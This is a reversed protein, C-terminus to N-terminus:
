SSTGEKMGYVRSRLWLGYEEMTHMALYQQQEEVSILPGIGLRLPHHSKNFVEAPLRLLRIRWDIVGLLYYFLSNGGFFRVPLIPVEAKAIFRLIPLQWERDRVCHESLSLDSVAGSPFLGLSGGSRLHELAHRIGLISERTPAAQASGIPVVPIFSPSLAEIRQLLKNALLKYSPCLRGFYDALVVGDLSGYPHNSITIFPMGRRLLDLQASVDPTEFKVKCSVGLDQLVSHAFDAGQLHSHRDYLANVKDVALLRMISRGMAHGMYGRFLPSAQELEQLTLLPM